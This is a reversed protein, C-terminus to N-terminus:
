DKELNERHYEIELIASNVVLSCERSFVIILYVQYLSVNQIIFLNIIYKQNLNEFIDNDSM